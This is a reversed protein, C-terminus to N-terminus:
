QGFHYSTQVFGGYREVTFKEPSSSYGGPFQTHGQAGLYWYRGGLAISLRKTVLWSGTLEFQTGNGDGYEPLPNITPRLWHNDFGTMNAYPLYAAEASLKFRNGVMGEALLGLRLSQWTQTESITLTSVPWSNPACVSTNGAIQQCGYANEIEKLYSYGLLGSVKVPKWDLVTYGFDVTGYRLKGQKQESLTNSYPSIGPPFDEDNLKGNGIEGLGFYGKLFMPSGKLGLHGFVEGSQADLGAYTLRSNLQSMTGPAYLTKKNTGTSYWYRPGLDLMWDSANPVGEYTYNGGSQNRVWPRGIKYNVGMTFLHAQQDLTLNFQTGSPATYSKGFSSPLLYNYEGTLSWHPSLSYELGAGVIGGWQSQREDMRPGTGSTPYVFIEHNGQLVAGGKLYILTDNSVLGVRGTFTALWDTTLICTSLHQECPASGTLSTKSFSTEVGSVLRGVQYNVGVRSGFDTGNVQGSGKFGDHYSRDWDQLGWGGGVFGGAYLGTWHHPVLAGDTNEVPEQASLTFSFSVLLIGLGLGLLFDNKHIVSVLIGGLVVM